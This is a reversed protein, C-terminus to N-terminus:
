KLREWKQKYSGHQKNLDTVPDSVRALEERIETARLDVWGQIYPARQFVPNVTKVTIIEEAAM